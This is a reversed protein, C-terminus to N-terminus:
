AANQRANEGRGKNGNEKGQQNRNKEATMAVDNGKLKPSAAVQQTDQREKEGENTRSTQVRASKSSEQSNEEQTPSEKKTNREAVEIASLAFSRNAGAFCTM